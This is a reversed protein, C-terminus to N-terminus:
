PSYSRTFYGFILKGEAKARKKAAAFSLAWDGNALFAEQLKQQRSEVLQEATPPRRQADAGAVLICALVPGLTTTIQM